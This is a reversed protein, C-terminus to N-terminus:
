LQNAFRQHLYCRARDASSAAAALSTATLTPRASASSAAVAGLSIAPNCASCASPSWITHVNDMILDPSTTGSKAVLSM